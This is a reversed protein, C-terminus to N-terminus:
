CEQPKAAQSAQKYFFRGSCMSRCLPPGPPVSQCPITFVSFARRRLKERERNVWWGGGVCRGEM